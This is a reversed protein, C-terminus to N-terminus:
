EKILEKFTMFRRICNEYECFYIKNTNKIYNSLVLTREKGIKITLDSDNDIWTLSKIDVNFLYLNDKNLDMNKIEIFFKPAKLDAYINNSLQTRKSTSLLVLKTRPMEKLNFDSFNILYNLNDKYAYLTSSTTISVNKAFPVFALIYDTDYYDTSFNEQRNKEFETMNIEYHKNDRGVLFFNYKKPNKGYIDYFNNILINSNISKITLNEDYKKNSTKIVIVPSKKLLTFNKFFYENALTESTIDDEEESLLTRFLYFDTKKINNIVVDTKDRSIDYFGNASSEPLILVSEETQSFAFANIFLCFLLLLKKLM